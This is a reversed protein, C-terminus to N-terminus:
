SLAELYDRVRNRRKPQRLKQLAKAEIQRVRERSLELARGIEALSYPHGDGLGFRMCIVDRERSTLDALLQQLDRQLAERMLVEEPSTEETELLDGLETDKEKGVKIELSVSRPVRLLVERVQPADMELEKAIDEITATRGQEQSIKRQAKKIKNLKETIHVPLRITRSQTAIARTIGQRIWWYAYTSFRYGKTPDFKEVARELGLTGEQILDLLELGRNQYKKAVSVVLRLNAKIMHEKARIGQAQIQDLEQVTLGALEAWRRKGVSLMPKLNSVEVGAVAAWRELSPRHGLQSALRDHTEILHVFHTITEDEPMASQTRLELLRMHRQVKQAESVEEDRRLLRVRGIEQLYLRVLDTTRRNASQTFSAAEADEIETEVLDDVPRELDESYVPLEHDIETDAYFPTAPM